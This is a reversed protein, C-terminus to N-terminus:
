GRNAKLFAAARLRASIRRFTTAAATQGYRVLVDILRDLERPTCDQASDSQLLTDATMLAVADDVSTCEIFERQFEAVFVDSM